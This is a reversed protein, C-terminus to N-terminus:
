QLEIQFLRPVSTPLGIGSFDKNFYGGQWEAYVPTNNTKSYLLLSLMVNTTSQSTGSTPSSFYAYYTTNGDNTPSFSVIISGGNDLYSIKKVYFPLPSGDSKVFWGWGSEWSQGAYTTVPFVILALILITKKFM